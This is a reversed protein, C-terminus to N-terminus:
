TLCLGILGSSESVSDGDSNTATLLYSFCQDSDRGEDIEDGSLESTELFTVGPPPGIFREILISGFPDGTVIWSLEVCEEDFGLPCDTFTAEFEVIVMPAALVTFTRTESWDSLGPETQRVRWEFVGPTAPNFVFASGSVTQDVVTAPTPSVRRIEIQYAEADPVGDWDMLISAPWTFEDGNEPENLVIGCRPISIPPAFSRALNTTGLFEASIALPTNGNFFEIEWVYGNTRFTAPVPSGFPSAVTSGAALHFQVFGEIASLQPAPPSVLVIAQVRYLAGPAVCLDDSWGEGNWREIRYGNNLSDFFPV